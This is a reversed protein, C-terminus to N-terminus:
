SLILLIGPTSEDSKVIISLDPTIKQLAAWENSSSINHNFGEPLDGKCTFHVATQEGNKEFSVSIEGHPPMEKLCCDISALLAMQLQIPNTMITIAQNPQRITLSVQKLTAFRQSLMVLNESLEFLEVTSTTKDPSHAFRNLRNTLNVGRKVQNKIVSLSKQFKEQYPSNQSILLLDEMLGSSEKIIALINKMEHTTAATIKGFFAIEKPKPVNM